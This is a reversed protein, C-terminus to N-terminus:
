GGLGMPPVHPQAWTIRCLSLFGLSLFGWHKIIPQLCFQGVKAESTTTSIIMIISSHLYVQGGCSLCERWRGFNTAM